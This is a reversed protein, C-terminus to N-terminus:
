APKDNPQEAEHVKHPLCRDCILEETNLSKSVAWGLRYDFGSGRM